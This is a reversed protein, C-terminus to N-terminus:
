DPVSRARPKRKKRRGPSSEPNPHAAADKEVGALAKIDEMFLVRLWVGYFAKDDEGGAISSIYAIAKDGADMRKAIGAADDRNVYGICGKPSVVRVANRDYCNGPERVLRIMKGPSLRAIISQRNIGDPNEHAEGAVAVDQGYKLAGEFGEDFEQDTEGDDAEFYQAVARHLLPLPELRRQSRFIFALGAVVAVAFIAFGITGM